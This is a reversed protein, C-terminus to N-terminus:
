YHSLFDTLDQYSVAAGWGMRDGAFVVGVVNGFFNVIPSGSSGPQIVMNTLYAGYTTVVCIKAPIAFIFIPIVGEEISFKPGSCEEESIGGEAKPIHEWEKEGNQNIKQIAIIGASISIDTTSIIEGKSLTIPMLSPHGVSAIIQGIAPDDGIDLGEVGPVGEILCLDTFDSREIIKRKLHLGEENSVLVNVGDKSVECVHDNTLIYSAGSKAKIAFGTGGGSNDNDRITYVKSGVKSRLWYGHFEPARAALYIFSFTVAAYMVLKISFNLIFSFIDFIAKKISLSRKSM